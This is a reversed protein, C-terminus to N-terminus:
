RFVCMCQKQHWVHLFNLAVSVDEKSLGEEVGGGEVTEDVYPVPVNSTIARLLLEVFNHVKLGIKPGFVGEGRKGSSVAIGTTISSNKTYPLCFLLILFLYNV